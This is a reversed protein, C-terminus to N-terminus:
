ETDAVAFTVNSVEALALVDLVNIVRDYRATEEAQVTILLKTKAQEAAKKMVVMQTYLSKLEKDQANGVPDDNLTVEGSESIGINIEDPMETEKATEANGPLTTKLEHEVKVAGAMVMFFLMIVFVVDIMPAIQFGANADPQPELQRM